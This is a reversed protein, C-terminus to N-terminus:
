AIRMNYLYLNYVWTEKMIKYNKTINKTIESYQRKRQDVLLQLRKISEEITNIDAATPVRETDVYAQPEELKEALESEREKLQYLEVM